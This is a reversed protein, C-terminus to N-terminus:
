VDIIPYSHSMACRHAQLSNSIRSIASYWLSSVLVVTFYIYLIHDTLNIFNLYHALQQFLFLASSVYILLCFFLRWENNRFKVTTSSKVKRLAMDNLRNAEQQDSRKTSPMVSGRINAENNTEEKKANTSNAIQSDEKLAINFKTTALYGCFTVVIAVLFLHKLGLAVSYFRFQQPCYIWIADGANHPMEVSNNFSYPALEPLTYAVVIMSAPSIFILVASVTECQKIGTYFLGAVLRILVLFAALILLYIAGRVLSSLGLYYCNYDVQIYDNSLTVMICYLLLVVNAIHAACNFKSRENDMEAIRTEKV